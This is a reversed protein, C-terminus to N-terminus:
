STHSRVRNKKELITHSNLIEEPEMHIKPHIKKKQLFLGSPSQYPNFSVALNNELSAPGNCM